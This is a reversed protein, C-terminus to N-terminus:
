VTSHAWVEPAALPVASVEVVVSVPWAEVAVLGVHVPPLGTVVAVKNTFILM